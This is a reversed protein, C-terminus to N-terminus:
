VSSAALWPLVGAGVLCSAFAMPDVAAVTPLAINLALLTAAYVAAVLVVVVLWAALRQSRSLMQIECRCTYLPAWALVPVFHQLTFRTAFHTDEFDIADDTLGVSGNTAMLLCCSMCYLCVSLSMGAAALMGLSTQLWRPQWFVFAGQALSHLALLGTSVVLSLHTPHSFLTAFGYKAVYFGEEVAFAAAVVITGVLVDWFVAWYISFLATMAVYSTHGGSGAFDSYAYLLLLAGGIAVYGFILGTTDWVYNVAASHDKLRNSVPYALAFLGLASLWLGPVQTNVVAFRRSTAAASCGDVPGVCAGSAFVAPLSDIQDGYTLSAALAALMQFAAAVGLQLAVSGTGSALERVHVAMVISAGVGVAGGFSMAITATDSAYAYGLAEITASANHLGSPRLRFHRVESAHNLGTRMIRVSGYLLLSAALMASSTSVANDIKNGKSSARTVEDVGGASFLWTVALCVLTTYFADFTRTMVGGHHVGALAVALLATGVVPRQLWGYIGKDPRVLVPAAFCSALVLSTGRLSAPVDAHDTTDIATLADAVLVAVFFMAAVLANSHAPM